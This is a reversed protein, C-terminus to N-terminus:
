MAQASAIQGQQGAQMEAKRAEISQLMRDAFPFSGFKLLDEVSIAGQSFLQM